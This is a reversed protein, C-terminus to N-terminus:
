NVAILIVVFLFVFIGIIILIQQNSSLKYWFQLPSGELEAIKKEKAAKIANEKARDEQSRKKRQALWKGADAETVVQTETGRAIYGILLILLGPILYFFLGVIGILSVLTNMGKRRTAVFQQDTMSGITWGTKVFHNAYKQLTKTANDKDPKDISNLERGCHKCVIAADQIEEACYPCTKM